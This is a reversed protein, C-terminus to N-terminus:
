RAPTELLAQALAAVYSPSAGAPFRVRLPGLSLELEPSHVDTTPMSRVGMVRVPLLRAGAKTPAERKFISSWYFLTATSLGRKHAFDKAKLGSDRWEKVVARWQERRASRESSKM